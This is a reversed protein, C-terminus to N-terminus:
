VASDEDTLVEKEDLHVTKTSARRRTSWEEFRSPALGSTDLTMGEFREVQQKLRKASSTQLWPGLGKTEIEDVLDAADRYQSIDYKYRDARSHLLVDGHLWTLLGLFLGTSTCLLLFAPASFGWQYNDTPLCVSTASLYDRSLTANGLTFYTIGFALFCDPVPVTQLWIGLIPANLHWTKSDLTLNSSGLRDIENYTPAYYDMSCNPNLDSHRHSAAYHFNKHRARFANPM